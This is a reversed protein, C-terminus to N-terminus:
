IIVLIMWNLITTTIQGQLNNNIDDLKTNTTTIEDQLNTVDSELDIIDGSITNINSSLDTLTNNISKVNSSLDDVTNSIINFSVDKVYGIVDGSITGGIVDGELNALLTTTDLNLHGNTLGTANTTAFRFKDESEDWGMFVNSLDGRRIIIGGDNMIHSGSTDKALEIISDVTSVNSTDFTTTEGLVNISGALYVDGDSNVTFVDNINLSDSSIVTSTGEGIQLVGNISVDDQFLANNLVDFLGNVSVGNKFLVNNNVDVNDISLTGNIYLINNSFEFINDFYSSLVYRRDNIANVIEDIQINTTQDQLYKTYSTYTKKSSSSM